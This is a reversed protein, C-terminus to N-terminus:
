GGFLRAFFGRSRVPTGPDPKKTWRVNGYDGKKCFVIGGNYVQGVYADAGVQFDFENTQPAGLNNQQAFKYLAADTNIPMWTLKNAEDLIAQELPGIPQPEPYPGPRPAPKPAAKFTLRFNVHDNEPLGMGAVVDSKTQDEIFAFYPGNKLTLDLNAYIPINANGDQDTVVKSPQDEAPNRGVWDMVCTVSKAPDGGAAQVKYYINHNGGAQTKDEYKASVLVWSANPTPKYTVGLPTLRPDFEM